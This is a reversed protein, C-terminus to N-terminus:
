KKNKILIYESYAYSMLIAAISWLIASLIFQYFAIPKDSFYPLKCLVLVLYLISFILEHSHFLHPDKVALYASRIFTIIAFLSIPIALTYLIGPWNLTGNANILDRKLKLLPSPKNSSTAFSNSIKTSM